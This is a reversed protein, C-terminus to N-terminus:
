HGTQYALLSLASQYDYRAITNGIEAQTQQLQAQSLEVISGLGLQYRTQALNLALNAQQLLQEAVALKQFATNMQLWTVRVDRAIRDRLDRVQQEAVSARYDAERARASFLFGNFIPINM